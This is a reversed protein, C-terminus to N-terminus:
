FFLSQKHDANKGSVKLAYEKEWFLRRVGNNLFFIRECILHDKTDLRFRRQPLKWLMWLSITRRWDSSMILKYLNCTWCLKCLACDGRTERPRIQIVHPDRTHPRPSCDFMVGIECINTHDIIQVLDQIFYNHRWLVVWTVFDNM